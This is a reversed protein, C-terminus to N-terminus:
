EWNGKSYDWEVKIYLIEPSPSSLLSSPIYPKGIKWEKEEGIPHYQITESHIDFKEVVAYIPNTILRDHYHYWFGLENESLTVKIRKPWPTPVSEKPIYFEFNVGDVVCFWKIKNGTDESQQFILKEM